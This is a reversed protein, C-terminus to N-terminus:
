RQIGSQKAGRKALERAKTEGELEAALNNLEEHYETAFRRVISVTTKDLTNLSSDPGIDITHASRLLDVANQLESYANPDLILTNADSVVTLASELLASKDDSSSSQMGPRTRFFRIDERENIAAEIFARSVVEGYERSFQM